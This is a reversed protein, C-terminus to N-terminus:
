HREGEPARSRFIRSIEDKLPEDAQLMGLVLSGCGDSSHRAAWAPFYVMKACTISPSSTSSLISFTGVPSQRGRGAHIGAHRENRNLHMDASQQVCREDRATQARSVPSLM